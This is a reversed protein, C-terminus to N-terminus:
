RPPQRGEMKRAYSGPGPGTHGWSGTTGFQADGKRVDPGVVLVDHAYQAFQGSTFVVDHSEGLNGLVVKLGDVGDERRRDVRPPLDVGVGASGRLAQGKEAPNGQILDFPPGAVTVGLEVGDDDCGSSRGKAQQNDV